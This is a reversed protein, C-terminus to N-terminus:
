KFGSAFEATSFGAPAKLKADAPQPIVKPGNAISSAPNPAPLTFKKPAGLALFGALAVVSTIALKKM